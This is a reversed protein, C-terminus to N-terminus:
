FQQFVQVIPVSYNGGGGGGGGGEGERGKWHQFFAYVDRPVVGCQFLMSCPSPPTEVRKPASQQQRSWTDWIHVRKAVRAVNTDSVFKIDQVCQINRFIKLFMGQTWAARLMTAANQWPRAVDCSVIHARKALPTCLAATVTAPGARCSDQAQNISVSYVAAQVVCRFYMNVDSGKTLTRRWSWTVRHFDLYFKM